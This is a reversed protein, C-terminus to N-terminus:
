RMARTAAPNWDGRVITISAGGTTKTIKLRTIVYVPMRRTKATRKDARSPEPFGNPHTHAIAVTGEPFAGLWRSENPVGTSPWRVIGLEGDPNRVVFAAEELKAHGYFAGRLLIWLQERVRPDGAIESEIAVEPLRVPTYISTPALMGILAVALPVLM